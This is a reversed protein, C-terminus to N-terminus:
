ISLRDGMCAPLMAKSYCVFVPTPAYPLVPFNLVSEHVKATHYCPLNVHNSRADQIQNMILMCCRIGIQGRMNLQVNNFPVDQVQWSIRDVYLAQM